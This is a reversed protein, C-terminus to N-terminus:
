LARYCFSVLNGWMCSNSLTLASRLFQALAYFIRLLNAGLAVRHCFYIRKDFCSCGWSGLEIDTLSTIFSYKCIWLRQVQRDAQRYYGGSRWDGWFGRLIEKSQLGHHPLSSGRCLDEHLDHGEAHYANNTCIFIFSSIFHLSEKDTTRQTFLLFILHIQHTKKSTSKDGSLKFFPWFCPASQGLSEVM